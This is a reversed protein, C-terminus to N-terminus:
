AESRNALAQAVNRELVVLPLAGDRLVLDHFTRLDFATGTQQQVRAKLERMKMLGIKYSCLQAPVAASRHVVYQAFETSMGTQERFYDIAQERTWRKWHIGTDVVLNVTSILEARLSLVRQVPSQPFGQEFPLTEAYKAWGEIYADFTFARRVMPLAANELATCLQLHHGPWTEHYVLTPLNAHRMALLSAVNMEFVGPRSGDAAPPTYTQNRSAEAFVPIPKVVVEGHPVRSFWRPLERRVAELLARADSVLADRQAMTDELPGSGAAEFREFSQALPAEPYGLGDLESAIRRQVLETQELGLAHIEQASWTTTTAGRLLFEYYANGDPLAWVGAVDPAAARHQRLSHAVRTYAPYVELAICRRAQEILEDRQHPDLTAVTAMKDRLATVLRNTEPPTAVFREVDELSDELLFGPTEIGHRRQRLLASVAEDLLAPIQRLRAVYDGADQPHRMPHLETLFLPLEAQLGVAPRLLNRHDVFAKGEVGIWDREQAYSCFFELVDATVRRTHDFTAVPFSRLDSRVKALLAIRGQAAAEGVDTFRSQVCAEGNLELLGMQTPLEPVERMMSVFADDVFRDFADNTTM